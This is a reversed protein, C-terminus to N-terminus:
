GPWNPDRLREVPRGGAMHEEVIEGVDSTSVSTYWVNDPYVAVTAGKEPCPGLCKTETVYVQTVLRKDQRARLLAALVANGGQEGCSQM